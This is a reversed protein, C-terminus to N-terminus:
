YDLFISAEKPHKVIVHSYSPPPPRWAWNQYIWSGFGQSSGRQELKEGIEEM